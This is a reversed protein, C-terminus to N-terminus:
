VIKREEEFTCDIHLGLNRYLGCSNLCLFGFNLFGFCVGWVCSNRALVTLSMRVNGHFTLLVLLIAM